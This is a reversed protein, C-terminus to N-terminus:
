KKNTDAILAAKHIRHLHTKM